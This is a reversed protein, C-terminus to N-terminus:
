VDMEDDEEEEDSDFDASEAAERRELEELRKIEAAVVREREEDRPARRQWEELAAPKTDKTLKQVAAGRWVLISALRELRLKSADYGVEVFKRLAELLVGRAKKEADSEKRAKKAAKVRKAEEPFQGM